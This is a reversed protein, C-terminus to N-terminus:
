KAVRVIAPTSSYPLYWFGDVVWYLHTDDVMLLRPDEQGQAHNTSPNYSRIYRLVALYPKDTADVALGLPNNGTNTAVTSAGGTRLVQVVAGVGSPNLNCWLFFDGGPAETFFKGYTCTQTQAQYQVSSMLHITNLGDHTHAAVTTTNTAYLMMRYAYSADGFIRPHSNQAVTM